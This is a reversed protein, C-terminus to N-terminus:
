VFDYAYEGTDGIPSMQVAGVKEILVHLVANAEQETITRVFLTGSFFEAKVKINNLTILVYQKVCTEFM